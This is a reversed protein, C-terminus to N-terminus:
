CPHAMLSLPHHGAEVASLSMRCAYAKLTRSYILFPKRSTCMLGYRVTHDIFSHIRRASISFESSGPWLGASGVTVHIHPVTFYPWSAHDKIEMILRARELLDTDRVRACMVTNRDLTRNIRNHARASWKRWIDQFVYACLVCLSTFRLHEMGESLM